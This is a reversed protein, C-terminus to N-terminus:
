LLGALKRVGGPRLHCQVLFRHTTLIIRGQRAEFLAVLESKFDEFPEYVNFTKKPHKVVGTM